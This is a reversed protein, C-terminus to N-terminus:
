VLLLQLLLLVSLCMTLKTAATERRPGKKWEEERLADIWGCMWVCRLQSSSAVLHGSRTYALLPLRWRTHVKLHSCFSACAVQLISYLPALRRCILLHIPDWNLNCDPLLLSHMCLIFVSLHPPLPLLVLLLLMMVTSVSGSNIALSLISSLCFM